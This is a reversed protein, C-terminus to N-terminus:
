HDEGSHLHMGGGRMMGGEPRTPMEPMQGKFNRITYTLQFMFYQKLVKTVDNEVYTETVSRSISKNQNLLDFASIRAELAQKKLLKYGIFANWLLYDQVSNSSFATYYNHSINTNLVIHKLLIYNIKFSATHNYYNNNALSQISNKVINYNASYSLTFDIKESINSGLVFGGSPAYNDSSENQYNVQGPTHTYNMGGNLNLNCKILKVPISYTVFARESSYGNINLPVILQGGKSIVIPTTMLSGKYTSVIPSQFTANGIYNNIYSANM